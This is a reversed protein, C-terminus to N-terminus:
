SKIFFKRYSLILALTSITFFVPSSLMPPPTPFGSHRPALLFNLFISANLVPWVWLAYWAWREGRRYPVATISLALMSLFLLAAGLSRNFLAILHLTEPNSPALTGLEAGLISEAIAPDADVGLIVDSAGFLAFVVGVFILLIWAIRFRRPEGPKETPTM